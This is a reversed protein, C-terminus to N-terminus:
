GIYYFDGTMIAASVTNLPVVGMGDAEMYSVMENFNNAMMIELWRLKRSIMDERATVPRNSARPDSFIVKLCVKECESIVLNHYRCLAGDM